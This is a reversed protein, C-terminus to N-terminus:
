GKTSLRYCSIICLQKPTPHVFIYIDCVCVFILFSLRTLLCCCHTLKYEYLIDISRGKMEQSDTQERKIDIDREESGFLEEYDYAIM